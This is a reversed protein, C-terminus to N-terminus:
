GSLLESLRLPLEDLTDYTRCTGHGAAALARCRRLTEVSSDTALVDLRAFGAAVHAPDAGANARGDTLVLAQRQSSPMRDLLEAGRSLGAAVDTLGWPRLALVRSVVALLGPNEGPALLVATSRWFATIALDDSGALALAAAGAATAAHVLPGGRMSGSVDLILVVGRRRPVRDRVWIDSWTPLPNGVLGEVTRDLDLDDSRFSYRAPAMRSGTARVARAGELRRVVVRGAAEVLRRLEDPGPREGLAVPRDSPTSAAAFESLARETERLVMEPPQEDTRAADGGRGSGRGSGGSRAAGPGGSDSWGSDQETPGSDFDARPHRDAGSDTELVSHPLRRGTSGGAARHSLLVAQDWLEDVLSEVTRTCHAAPVIRATLALRAARREDDPRTSGLRALAGAVACLDIAGRISSGSALEPHTRSARVAEVAQRVLGPGATPVCQAVIAMAAAVDPHDVALRVARDLFASPVAGTGTRDHPNSLAVVRFGPAARVTGLLPATVEGESMAPVLAAFADPSLRNAEDLVLVAGRRMAEVLPGPRFGIRRETVVNQRGARLLGAPDTQGLLGGASFVTTADVEVLSWGHCAHRLLDTKGAGAPGEILLHRGADLAARVLSTERARGILRGPRTGVSGAGTGTM